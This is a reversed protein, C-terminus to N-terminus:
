SFVVSAMLADFDARLGNNPSGTYIFMYSRANRFHLLATSHLTIQLGYEATATQSFDVSFYEVGNVTVTKVDEASAGVMEAIDANTFASNDIDKRRNFIKEIASFDGWLDAAVYVINCAPDKLSSFAITKVGETIETKERQWGEPATFSAGNEKDECATPESEPLTKPVYDAFFVSKILEEMAAEDQATVADAYTHLAFSYSKGGWVTYYQIGSDMAYANKFWTRTFPMQSHAYTDASALDVGMESFGDTLEPLLMELATMGLEAYDSMDSDQITVTIEGSGDEKVADMYLPMSAFMDLVDGKTLGYVELLPDDAAIDPTLLRYGEPIVLSIGYEEITHAAGEAFCPIAPLLSLVLLFILIKKM